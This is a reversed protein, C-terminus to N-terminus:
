QKGKEKQRETVRYLSKTDSQRMYFLAVFNSNFEGNRSTNVTELAVAALAPRLFVHLIQNRYSACSLVGVARNFLAEEPSAPDQPGEVLRVRGGTAQVLGHHLALSSAVM